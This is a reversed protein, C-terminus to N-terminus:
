EELDKYYIADGSQKAVLLKKGILNKLNYPDISHTPAPRLAELDEEKIISNKELNKTLRLCRRQVIATQEENKEIRKIGDGLAYELEKAAIMMAKWSQPNMSFAHDPGRKLNDDTFHKEVVRAGLAISGLVASHGPTHDSLGLVMNPYKVAFSKLVNLNVYKFNEISGTYNTNCQMLMIQPNHEIIAEVAREVDFIDAAGTAIIIPKNKQAVTKIFDIWTIDGSGIKYARVYKDIMALAESDYPTTMFEIDNQKATEYLQETWERNCEYEQYIEYVSKDWKSQHSSVTKLNKFGYDSVIKSALFHQFKVADAGSDKAIKILDNAREIKGDHNSAVDAIFYTPSNISIEREGIFIKNAYKM